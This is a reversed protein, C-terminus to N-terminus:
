SISQILAALICFAVFVLAALAGLTGEVSSVGLDPTMPESERRRFTYCISSQGFLYLLDVEVVDRDTSGDPASTYAAKLFEVGLRLYGLENALVITKGEYEDDEVRVIAGEKGIREDLQGILTYLEDENIDIM